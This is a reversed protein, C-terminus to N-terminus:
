KRVMQETGLNSAHFAPRAESGAPFETQESMTKGCVGIQGTGTREKETERGPVGMTLVLGVSVSSINGNWM